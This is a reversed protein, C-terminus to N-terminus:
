TRSKARELVKNFTNETAKYWNENLGAQLYLTETDEDFDYTKIAIADVDSAWRKVAQLNTFLKTDVPNGSKDYVTAELSVAMM